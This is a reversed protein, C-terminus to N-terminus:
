LDLLDRLRASLQRTSSFAACAAGPMVRLNEELLFFGGAEEVLLEVPAIDHLAVRPEVMADAHGEAVLVHGFWDGLGRTRPGAEVLRGLAPWMGAQRFDGIEGHIVMAREIEDTGGSRIDLRRWPGDGRTGTGAYAGTGLAAWWTLGPPDGAANSADGPPGVLPQGPGLLPAHIVALVPEGDVELALLTAVFPLGAVFSKTGDIPDVIWRNEAPGEAGFEEGLIGYGPTAHGLVERVAREAGRDALTVPTGDSKDTAEMSEPNRFYRRVVDGARRCAELAPELLAPAPPASTM